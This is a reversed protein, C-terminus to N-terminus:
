VKFFFVYMFIMFFGFIVKLICVLFIFVEFCINGLGERGGVGVWDVYVYFFIFINYSRFLLMGNVNLYMIEFLGILVYCLGFGEIVVIEIDEFM